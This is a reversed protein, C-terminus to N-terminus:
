PRDGNNGDPPTTRSRISRCTRGSADRSDILADQSRPRSLYCKVPQPEALPHKRPLASVAHSHMSPRFM